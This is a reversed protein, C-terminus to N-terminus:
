GNLRALIEQIQKKMEQNEKELADIRKDKAADNAKITSIEALRTM